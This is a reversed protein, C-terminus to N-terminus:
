LIPMRNREPSLKWCLFYNLKLSSFYNICKPLLILLVTPNTKTFCFFYLFDKCKVHSTQFNQQYQDCTQSLIFLARLCIIELEHFDSFQSSSNQIISFYMDFVTDACFLDRNEKSLLFNNFRRLIQFAGTFLSPMFYTTKMQFNLKADGLQSGISKLTEATTMLFSLDRSFTGMENNDTGLIKGMVLLDGITLKIFLNTELLLRIRLQRFYGHFVEQVIDRVHLIFQTNRIFLASLASIVFFDDTFNADFFLTQSTMFSLIKRLMGSDAMKEIFSKEQVGYYIFVLLQGCYSKTLNFNDIRSQNQHEFFDFWRTLTEIGGRRIFLTNFTEKENRHTEDTLVAILGKLTELGFDNTFDTTNLRLISEDVFSSAYDRGFDTEISSVSQLLMWTPLIKRIVIM